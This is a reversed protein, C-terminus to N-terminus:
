ITEPLTTISGTYKKLVSLSLNSERQRERNGVTACEPCIKRRRTGIPGCPVCEEGEEEVLVVGGMGEGARKEM